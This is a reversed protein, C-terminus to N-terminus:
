LLIFVEEAEERHSRCSRSRDEIAQAPVMSVSHDLKLAVCGGVLDPRSLDLAESQSIEKAQITSDPNLHPGLGLQRDPHRV